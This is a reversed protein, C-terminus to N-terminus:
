RPPRVQGPHFLDANSPPHATGPAPRFLRFRRRRTWNEHFVKRASEQKLVLRVALNFVLQPCWRPRERVILRLKEEWLNAGEMAFVRAQAALEKSPVLPEVQEQAEDQQPM